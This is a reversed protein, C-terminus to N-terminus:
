RTAILLSFSIRAVYFFCNQFTMSHLCDCSEYYGLQRHCVVHRDSWSHESYFCFACQWHVTLPGSRCVSLIKIFMMQLQMSMWYMNILLIRSCHLLVAPLVLKGSSQCALQSRAARNIFFM